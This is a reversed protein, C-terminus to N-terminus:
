YPRDLLSAPIRAVEIGNRRSVEGPLATLTRMSPINQIFRMPPKREAVRKVELLSRFFNPNLHNAAVPALARVSKARSVRRQLAALLAAGGDGCCVICRLIELFPEIRQAPGWTQWGWAFM